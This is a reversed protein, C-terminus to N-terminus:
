IIAKERIQKLVNRKFKHPGGWFANESTSLGNGSTMKTAALELACILDAGQFLRYKAPTVDPPFQTKSSYIAFAEQLMKKMQAQGNDYYVKIQDFPEFIDARAILFSVIERLLVDHLVDNNDTFHKKVCFYRSINVKRVFTLMAFFIRRRESLSLTAYENERRILPSTHVCHNSGVATHELAENLREIEGAIGAAQDHLVMCVSYYSSSREDHDFSGSEDVFVSIEKTKQREMTNGYYFLLPSQEGSFAFPNRRTLTDGFSFVRQRGYTVLYM